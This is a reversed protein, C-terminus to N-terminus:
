PPTGDRKAIADRAAAPLSGYVAAAEKPGTIMQDAILNVLRFLAVATESDDRLDIQGPHVANNGIVRMVDLSQQVSPLLGSKVLAAIDTNINDGKQGLEKCLKQIALRLLAAAGRPSHNLIARAEEYDKGIDDSLDANPLPASSASPYVMSGKFWLAGRLSHVRRRGLRDTANGSGTPRGDHHVM